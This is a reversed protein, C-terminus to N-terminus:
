EKDPDSSKGKKLEEIEAKMEDLIQPLPKVFIEHEM